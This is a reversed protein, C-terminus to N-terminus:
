ANTEEVRIVAGQLQLVHIQMYRTDSHTYTHVLLNTQVDMNKTHRGQNHSSTIILPNLPFLNRKDEKTMYNKKILM